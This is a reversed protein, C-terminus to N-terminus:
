FLGMNMPPINAFINLHFDDFIEYILQAEPIVHYIDLLLGFIYM